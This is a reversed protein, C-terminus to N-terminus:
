DKIEENTADPHTRQYVEKLREISNHTYIQTAALNTHGLLEKIAKLEAGANILHTAFTHRLVHPSRKDATSVMSLYHRVRLYVFKPYLPEGKNTLFFLRTDQSPFSEARLKLYKEFLSILQTPVPIQREKKGKGVITLLGQAFDIQDITFNVIEARRMGTAYLTELICRDRIGAFDESFIIKIDLDANPAFLEQTAKEPLFTALRQGKKPLQIGKVPQHDIDGRQQLFKFFTRLSAVKRHVSTPKCDVQMLSVLWARLYKPNTALIDDCEYRGLIFQSFQRIDREYAEITHVSYRKEYQLYAVFASIFSDNM